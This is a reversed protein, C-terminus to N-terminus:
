FCFWFLYNNVSCDNTWITMYILWIKVIHINDQASYIAKNFGFNLTYNSVVNNHVSVLYLYLLIHLFRHFIKVINSCIREQSREIILTAVSIFIRM